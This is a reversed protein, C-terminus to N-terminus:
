LLLTMLTMGHLCLVWNPVIEKTLLSVSSLMFFMLASMTTLPVPAATLKVPKVLAALPVRFIRLLVSASRVISLSINKGPFLISSAVKVTLARIFVINLRSRRTFPFIVTQLKITLIDSGKVSGLVVPRIFTSRVRVRM